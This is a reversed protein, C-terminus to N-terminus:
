VRANSIYTVQRPTLEEIACRARKSSKKMTNGIALVITM